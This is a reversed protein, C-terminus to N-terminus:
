ERRMSVSGAGEATWSKSDWAIKKAKLVCDEKGDEFTRLTVNGVMYLKGDEERCEISKAQAEFNKGRVRVCDREAVFSLTSNQRWKLTMKDCEMSAADTHVSMSPHDGEVNARVSWGRNNRVESVTPPAPPTYVTPLGAPYAPATVCAQVPSPLPMPMTRVNSPTGLTPYQLQQVPYQIAPVPPVTGNAVPPPVHFSPHAAPLPSPGTASSGLDCPAPQYPPLSNGPVTANLGVQIGNVCPAQPPMPVQALAIENTGMGDCVWEAFTGFMWVALEAMGASPQQVLIVSPTASTTIAQVAKPAAATQCVPAAPAQSSDFGPMICAPWWTSVRPYGPQAATQCVPAAPAQSFNFSAMQCSDGTGVMNRSCCDGQAPPCEKVQVRRLAKLLEQVQEQMEATQNVVLSRGLPYYEVTGAGGAAKWSKPELSKEILKVLLDIADHGECDKCCLQFASADPTTPKGFALAFIVNAHM